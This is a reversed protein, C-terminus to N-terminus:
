FKKINSRSKKYIIVLDYLPYLICGKRQLRLTIYNLNKYKTKKKYKFIM